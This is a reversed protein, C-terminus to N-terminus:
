KKEDAYTGSFARDLAHPGESGSDKREFLARSREEVRWRRRAEDADLNLHVKSDVKAVWGCPIGHHQGGADKDSRTLVIHGGRLADVTGVHGGDSGLVEMHEHIKEVDAHWAEDRIAFGSGGPAAGYGGQTLEGARAGAGFDAGEASDAPQVEHTTQNGWGTGFSTDGQWEPGREKSTM